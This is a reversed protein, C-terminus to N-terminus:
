SKLLMKLVGFDEDFSKKHDVLIETKKHDNEEEKTRYKAPDSM